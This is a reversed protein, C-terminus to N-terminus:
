GSLLEVAVDWCPQPQKETEGIRASEYGTDDDHGEQSGMIFARGGVTILSQMDCGMEWLADRLGLCYFQKIPPPVYLWIEPILTKTNPYPIWAAFCTGSVKSSFKVPGHLHWAMEKPFEGLTGYGSYLKRSPTDFLVIGEPSLDFAKTNDFWGRSLLVTGRNDILSAKLSHGLRVNSPYVQDKVVWTWGRDQQFTAISFSPLIGPLEDHYLQRGGFIFLEDNVGVMAASMRPLICSDSVDVYQWIYTELDISILRNTTARSSSDFGGFLFMYSRSNLTMIAVAPEGLAPLLQQDSSVPSVKVKFWKFTKLCLCYFDRTPSLSKDRPRVGGYVYVRHTHEDAAFSEWDNFPPCNGTLFREILEPKLKPLM